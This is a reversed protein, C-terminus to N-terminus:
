WLNLKIRTLCLCVYVFLFPNHKKEFSNHSHPVELRM